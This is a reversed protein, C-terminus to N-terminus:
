AIPANPLGSAQCPGASTTLPVGKYTAVGNSDTQLFPFVADLIKKKLVQNETAPEGVFGDVMVREGIQAGEPPDVFKVQDGSSACLVMGHSPFEVLNRAKLNALVLVKRNVLDDVSYYAKLGSAIQRPGTEEGLDIEECFLKDAKPHEWAKNIVGVRIDLKSIDIETDASPPPTKKAKQPQSDKAKSPPATTTDTTGDAATTPNYEYNMLEERSEIITQPLEETRFDKPKEFPAEGALFTALGSITSYLHFGCCSSTFGNSHKDSLTCIM